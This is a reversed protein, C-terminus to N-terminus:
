REGRPRHRGFLEREGGAGAEGEGDGDGRDVLTTEQLRADSPRRRREALGEADLKRACRSVTPQSLDTRERLQEDTLYGDAEALVLYLLRLPTDDAAEVPEPFVSSV